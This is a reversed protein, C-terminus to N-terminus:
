LESIYHKYVGLEFQSVLKPMEKYSYQSLPKHLYGYKLVWAHLRSYDKKTEMGASGVVTAATIWGMEHAMAFLKATMKQSAGGPRGAPSSIGGVIGQKNLSALLSRAEEITLAKTSTTRGASANLVIDAKDSMLGMKALTANIAKVQEATAKTDTNM